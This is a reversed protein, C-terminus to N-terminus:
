AIRRYNYHYNNCSWHDIVQCRAHILEFAREQTMPSRRPEATAFQFLIWSLVLGLLWLEIIMM